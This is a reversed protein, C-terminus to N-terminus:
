YPPYWIAKRWPTIACTFITFIILLGGFSAIGIYGYLAWNRSGKNFGCKPNTETVNFNFTGENIRFVPTEPNSFSRCTFQSANSSVGLSPTGVLGDDYTAFQVVWQGQELNDLILHVTGNISIPATSSFVGSRVVGSGNGLNQLDVHLTLNGGEPILISYPSYSPTDAILTDYM